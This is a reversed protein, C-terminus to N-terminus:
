IHVYTHVSKCLMDWKNYRLGKQMVDGRSGGYVIQNAAQDRQWGVTLLGDYWVLPILVFFLQIVWRRKAVPFISFFFFFFLPGRAKEGGM